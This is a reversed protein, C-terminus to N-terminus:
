KNFNLNNLVETSRFNTSWPYKEAISAMVSEVKEQERTGGYYLIRCDGGRSRKLKQYVTKTTRILDFIVLLDAEPIDIDREGVNSLIAIMQKDTTRFHELQSTRLKHNSKGTITITKFGRANLMQELTDVSDLYSCLIVSKRYETVFKLVAFFKGPVIPLNAKIFDQDMGYRILHRSSKKGTMAWLYKRCLYGGHFASSIREEVPLPGFLVSFDEKAKYYLDSDETKLEAMLVNKAEQIHQDLEISVLAMREDSIETAIVDSVSVHEHLDTHMISEMTILEVNQIMEKLSTLEKKIRLQDQNLVYHDDRLTGSMGIISRNQFFNLLTPYPHKLTSKNGMRKIIQDVENIMVVSFSEIADPHKNLTNALTQPLCLVVRKSKLERSRYNSGRRSDIIGISEQETIKQIYSHTEYLSTTAQLILLIKKEKFIDKIFSSQLFRKGLGCDLEILVNKKEGLKTITSDLIAKQYGRVEFDPTSNM